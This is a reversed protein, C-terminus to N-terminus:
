DEQLKIKFLSYPVTEPVGWVESYPLWLLVENGLKYYIISRDPLLAYHTAGEPPDIEIDEKATYGCVSCSWYPIYFDNKCMPCNKM